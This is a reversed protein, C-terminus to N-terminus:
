SLGSNHKTELRKELLDLIILMKLGRSDVVNKESSSGKWALTHTPIM